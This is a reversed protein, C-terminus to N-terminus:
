TNVTNDEQDTIEPESAEEIMVPEEPMDPMDPMEPM